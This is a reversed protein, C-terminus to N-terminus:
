PQRSPGVSYNERVDDFDLTYETQGFAYSTIAWCFLFLVGVVLRAVSMTRM